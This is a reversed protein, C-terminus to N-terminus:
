TVCIATEWTKKLKEHKEHTKNTIIILETQHLSLASDVSLWGLYTLSYWVQRQYPSNKTRFITCFLSRLSTNLRYTVLSTLTECNFTKLMRCLLWNWECWKVCTQPGPVGLNHELQITKGNAVLCLCAPNSGRSFIRYVSLNVKVQCPKKVLRTFSLTIIVM